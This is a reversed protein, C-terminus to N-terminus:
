YYDIKINIAQRGLSVTNTFNYMPIMLIKLQHTRFGKISLYCSIKPEQWRRSWWTEARLIEAFSTEARINRCWPCKPVQVNQCLPCKPVHVNRGWPRKPGMVNRGRSMEAGLCKPRLVNQGGLKKVVSKKKDTPIKKMCINQYWYWSSM